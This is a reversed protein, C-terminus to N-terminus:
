NELAINRITQDEIQAIVAELDEDEMLVNRPQQVQKRSSVTLRSFFSTIQAADLYQTVSFRKSGNELPAQRIRMSADSPTFKEGSKQGIDFIESLFEKLDSSFRVAKKREKFGM